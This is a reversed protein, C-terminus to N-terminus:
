PNRNKKRTGYEYSIIILFIIGFLGFIFSLYLNYPWFLVGQLLLIFGLGFMTIYRDRKRTKYEYIFRILLLLGLSGSIFSLPSKFVVWMFVAVILFMLCLGFKIFDTKNVMIKEKLFSVTRDVHGIDKKELKFYYM